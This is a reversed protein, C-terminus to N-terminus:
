LFFGTEPVVARLRVSRIWSEAVVLDVRDVSERLLFGVPSGEVVRPEDLFQVFRRRDERPGSHCVLQQVEPPHQRLRLNELLEPRVPSRAASPAALIGPVERLREEDARRYKSFRGM